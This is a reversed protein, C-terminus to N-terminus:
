LNKKNINNKKRRTKDGNTTDKDYTVADYTYKMSNIRYIFFSYLDLKDQILSMRNRKKFERMTVLYSLVVTIVSSVFAPVGILSFLEM